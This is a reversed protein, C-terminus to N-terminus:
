KGVLRAVSFKDAELRHLSLTSVNEPGLFTIVLNLWVSKGNAGDGLLLVAKQISTDPLMLWAAMEYPLPRTDNPFVDATFQEIAPCRADPIYTAAIQVASLHDPSHPRLVRTAIDLLGNRVNLTDLPPREWLEPADVRLWECVRTALEPTWSKT